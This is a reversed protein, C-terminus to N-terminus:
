VGPYHGAVEYGQLVAGAQNVDGRGKAILVQAQAAVPFQGKDLRHVQAADNGAAIGKGALEDFVGIVGNHLIQGVAAEEVVAVDVAVGIGEAPAAVGGEEVVGFGRPVDAGGGVFVAQDAVVAGNVPIGVVDPLAPEAFPQPVIHIPGDGPFAIPARGDGDPLAPIAAVPDANAAYGFQFGGSDGVLLGLHVAQIQVTGIHVVYGQGARNRIAAAFHAADRFHHIGPEVGARHGKGLPVIGKVVLGNVGIAAKGGIVDALGDVLGAAPEVAEVGQSGQELFLGGVAIDDAQPQNQVSATLLHALVHAIHHLRSGHQVGVAGVGQAPIEKGSGMGAFGAAKGVAQDVFGQAPHQQGEPIDIGEKGVVGGDVLEM